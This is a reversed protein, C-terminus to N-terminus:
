DVKQEVTLVFPPSQAETITAGVKHVESATLTFDTPFM